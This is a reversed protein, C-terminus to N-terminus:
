GIIYESLALAAAAMVCPVARPAVCPDHRGTISLKANTNTRLDVTDQERAISPTPKFAARFILPAGTSLGGLIGGASNKATRVVGNEMRYPDNNQSGYLKSARFGEGFEIGKVAPVAFVARAIANELGDFMPEGLGVPLGLVACEVVGGVSDGRSRADEIVAHMQEGKVQDLVCPTNSLARAFDADSVDLPDFAEDEVDFVSKLHAGFRVGRRAMLQMLIGGAACLPATLRASFHGGGRVDNMGGYKVFAPYDAHGPRPLFKLKEYDNSRTDANEILLCLPAGCTVSDVVGSVIRVADTERRKTSLAGGPARLAMFRALADMDILEGAPLGDIVAGISEGHSQGFISVVIKRGYTSAM